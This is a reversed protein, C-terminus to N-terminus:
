SRRCTCHSPQHTPHQDQILLLVPEHREQILATDPGQVFQHCQSVTVTHSSTPGQQCYIFPRLTKDSGVTGQLGRCHERLVKLFEEDDLWGERVRDYGQRMRDTYGAHRLEPIFNRQIGCLSRQKNGWVVLNLRGQELIGLKLSEISQRRLKSTRLSVRRLM